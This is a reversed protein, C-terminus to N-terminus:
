LLNAVLPQLFCVDPSFAEINLSIGNSFSEDSDQHIKEVCKNKCSTGHKTRLVYRYRNKVGMHLGNFVGIGYFPHVVFKPIVGHFQM